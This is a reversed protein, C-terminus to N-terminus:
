EYLLDPRLGTCNGFFLIPIEKNDQKEKITMFYNSLFKYYAFASFVDCGGGMGIIGIRKFKTLNIQTELNFEKNEDINIDQKIDINDILDQILTSVAM